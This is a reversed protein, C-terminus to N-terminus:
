LKQSKLQGRSVVGKGPTELLFVDNKEVGGRARGAGDMTRSKREFKKGGFVGGGRTLM